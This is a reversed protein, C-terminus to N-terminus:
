LVAFEGVAPTPAGLDIGRSGPSCGGITLRFRGPEIQPEGADNIFHMAETELTFAAERSEGPELAIRQFAVLKHLPVVTSAELDSLYVQVVEEAAVDGVNSLTVQANLAEGAKITRPIRLNSYEFRTYSLGFGFPYAPEETMYRYTRGAMAYDEFPPLQAASKPFTIPLRGSPATDGFLLDAIARGGEQGPYWVYVIAQVLDALDGLAIPSGGFLVLVIKTKGGEALDRVFDIQSQPLELSLRDGLTPSLIADGEESELMTTLGLAAIVVDSRHAVGIAWSQPNVKPQALPCGIQYVVRMGEPAHAVVGELLSTLTDSNGFYNGLLVDQNNALPGTVFIERLDPGLPLLNGENKLLVASKATAIYALDRHEPSNVVNLPIDTYPVAEPADFMGLRFRTTLTRGLSRDIEEETILGLGLADDLSCYTGGGCNLDCGRRVSIAAAEAATEVFKHEAYIDRIAWCDSVVHGDFEWAGRLITELLYSHACAPEGNIRNYAGMVAEVKAEMVLRKFAPLYTDHLDRLSVQADFGHRLAEPGSHVAYHKACAATKLYRPDDGQLGRVFAMGIEGTLYPDEGYTEQGRGWRPDRFININPSWFTLGQMHGTEGNRKLAAHHKARGEDGIASAIQQILAPDFTAGLAIAQPFVTARGNGAVGHLAESWYDYAPIGLRPVGAADHLMLSIKEELTLRSVLDQVREATPRASDLYLPVNQTASM